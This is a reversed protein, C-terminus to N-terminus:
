QENVTMGGKCNDWFSSAYNRTNVKIGLLIAFYIYWMSYIFHVSQKFIYLIVNAFSIKFPTDFYMIVTSNLWLTHHIHIYYMMFGHSMDVCSLFFIIISVFIIQLFVLM